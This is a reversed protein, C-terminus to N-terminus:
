LENTTAIGSDRSNPRSPKVKGVGWVVISLILGPYMPEIGFLYTDNQAPLYRLLFWIMSTGCGLVMALFATAASIRLRRFYCAMLPVLLGPIIVTGLTYWLQVVSPIALALMASFLFSIILGAQTARTATSNTGHHDSDTHLSQFLQPHRWRLWFDRGLTQASVFSLTNLTAMITALMGVYFIGKIVPPLVTEALMPYAMMPQSLHPVAARAYLGATTTMCDFVLWFFISCVIGWRAVNGNKAAYCRQHFAPDVLTWLAIFFWVIIYQISNGGNWTLHLPPLTSQLFSLGGYKWYSYPLILSFGTFMLLFEFVNTQVDSRFGGRYLYSVAVIATVLLSLPLSWGFLMELLVGLMLIYPAPTMIVFTLFSGFIATRRGYSVELKDPITYLNTARVKKALAFAFLAAFIYYPLGQVVWNVLGYRYSFEGVGLVGGYWSSVLTMVFVPLTLTRGALLFDEEGTGTRKASRYGIFVVAAFYIIIIIVDATGLHIM